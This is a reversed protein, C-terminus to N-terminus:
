CTIPLPWPRARKGGPEFTLSRPDIDPSPPHARMCVKFRGHDAHNAAARFSGPHKIAGHIWNKDVPELVSGPMFTECHKLLIASDEADDSQSSADVTTSVAASCRLLHRVAVREDADAWAVNQTIAACEVNHGGKSWDAVQCDKSCYAAVKCSKCHGAAVDGKGCGECYQVGCGVRFAKIADGVNPHTRQERSYRHLDALNVQVGEVDTVNTSATPPRTVPLPTAAWLRAELRPGKGKDRRDQRAEYEDVDKKLGNNIYWPRFADWHDALEGPYAELIWRLVQRKSEAHLLLAQSTTGCIMELLHVWGGYRRIFVALSQMSANSAAVAIAGYITPANWPLAPGMVLLAELTASDNHHASVRILDRFELDQLIFRLVAFSHEILALEIIPTMKDKPRSMLLMRLDAVTEGVDPWQLEMRFEARRTVEEAMFLKRKADDHGFNHAALVRVFRHNDIDVAMDAATRLTFDPVHPNLELLKALIDPRKAYLTQEIAAKSVFHELYPSAVLLNAAEPGRVSASQDM